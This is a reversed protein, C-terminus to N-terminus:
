PMDRDLSPSEKALEFLYTDGIRDYLDGNISIQDDSEWQVTSVQHPASTFYVLDGVPEVLVLGLDIAYNPHVYVYTEDDDFIDDVEQVRISLEGSYSPIEEEVIRVLGQDSFVVFMMFAVGLIFLYQVVTLVRLVTERNKIMCIILHSTSVLLIIIAMAKESFLPRSHDLVAMWALIWVFFMSVSLIHFIKDKSFITAIEVGM